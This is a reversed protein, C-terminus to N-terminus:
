SKKARKEKEEEKGVREIIERFSLEKEKSLKKVPIGEEKMEGRVKIAFVASLESDTKLFEKIVVEKLKEMLPPFVVDLSEEVSKRMLEKRLMEYNEVPIAIDSLLVREMPLFTTCLESKVTMGQNNIDIIKVIGLNSVIVEAEKGAIQKLKKEFKKFKSREKLYDKLYFTIGTVIISTSVGIVVGIM